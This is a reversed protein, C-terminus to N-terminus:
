SKKMKTESNSDSDTLKIEDDSRVDDVYGKKIKGLLVQVINYTWVINMLLIMFMLGIFVNYMHFLVGVQAYSETLAQKMIGFPFIILRTVVWVVIFVFFLIDMIDQRGCYGSLKAFLLPIDNCELLLINLTGLRTLNTIWSCSLLLIACIHHLLTQTSDKRKPHLFHTLSEFWYFGSATMYYWWVGRSVSQFPFHSWCQNMDYFWPKDHLVYIGLTCCFSYYSLQWASDTFKYLTSPQTVVARHRLWRLVKRESLGCQSSVEMLVKQPPHTRHSKFVSELVVNTPPSTVKKTKVGLYAALPIYVYPQLVFVKLFFLSAAVVFPYTLIDRSNPYVMDNRTKLDEWTYGPPFWISAAWIYDM